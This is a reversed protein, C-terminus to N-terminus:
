SWPLELQPGYQPPDEPPVVASAPPKGDLLRRLIPLSRNIDIRITARDVQERSALEHLAMPQPSLFQDIVVRQARPELHSIAALLQELQDVSAIRDLLDVSPDPLVDSLSHSDCGRVQADLSLSVKPRTIIREFTELSWGLRETLEQRTPSRNLEATLDLMATQVKSHQAAHTTPLRISRGYHELFSHVGQRIWWYAYTSFKYGRTPDFKEVARMLGLNGAQILDDQYQSPVSRYKEAFSIVLRLNAQVFRDRARRGRRELAPPVPGPHDLWERVAQGLHIEQAATLLPFRGAQDHWWTM